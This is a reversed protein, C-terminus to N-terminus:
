PHDRGEQQDARHVSGLLNAAADNAIGLRFVSPRSQPDLLRATGNSIAIEPMGAAASRPASIAAGLGDEVVAM